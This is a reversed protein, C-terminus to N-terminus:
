ARWATPLGEDGEVDYKPDYAPELTAAADPRTPRYAVGMSSAVTGIAWLLAAFILAAKDIPMVELTVLVVFALGGLVNAVLAGVYVATRIAPSFTPRYEPM